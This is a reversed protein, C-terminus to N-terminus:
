GSVLCKDISWHYRCDNGAVAYPNTTSWAVSDFWQSLADGERM